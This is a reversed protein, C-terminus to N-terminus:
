RVLARLQAVSDAASIGASPNNRLDALRGDLMTAIEPTVTVEGEGLTQKLADFVELREPRPLRTVRELLTQDVM